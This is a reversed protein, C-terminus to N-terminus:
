STVVINSPCTIVPPELDPRVKVDFCCWQPAATASIKNTCCVTTVGPPFVSGSPQSCTVPLIAGTCIDVAHADFIVPAGNPGACEVVINSPCVIRICDSPCRVTVTFNCCNSNGAKDFACCTVPTVGPPFLTTPPPDCRVYDLKCNDDAMPFPYPV